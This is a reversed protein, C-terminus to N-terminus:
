HFDVPELHVIRYCMVHVDRTHKDDLPLADETVM